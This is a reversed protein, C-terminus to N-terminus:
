SIRPAIRVVDYWLMTDDTLKTYEVWQAEDEFEQLRLSAVGPEDGMSIILECPFRPKEDKTRWHHYTNDINGIDDRAVDIGEHFGSIHGRHFGSGYALFVSVALAVLVAVLLTIPSIM